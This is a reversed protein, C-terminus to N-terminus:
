GRLPYSDKPCAKNLDTFDVYMRWKGSAKKVMVVNALWEPYYVEKIFGAELLKGVEQAIARDRKPAFVRKKQRVPPTSPNVNLKHVIVFPDIGPMDEHNWAFIDQNKRLFTILAQRVPQCALTGIRTTRKPESENLIVVEMEEAPEAVTRQEEICMAQHHDEMELMAIYCERATAQNGRLEGIGYDTPFKIMIHYTSTAAKWSNLTPRGLIDNYASSCDVVLFMVNRTLEQPYDGVTVPLTISGIPFVKTGGFGVLPASAPMLQARDIGMQQFAPYYLIDVSSGNDILVRHVNYDGVRISVVLADDHPHHLRRADEETFGIIPSEMRTTNPRSGTIHVNLVSRLYTKRAKKSSGTSATGGVIMRIDGIPPRPRENDRRPAPEQRNHDTKEKNVFKQLKGQRILAEIQQKLDYCEATDHGHDRHFRCYKDRSRKSPDSKLKGPFTLTEEDKIQMLVQDIPANLPTFSTFRGSPPKPRREDRRDGTRPRKQGQDQRMDVQRERKKPREERALLADKANMYKNARYLVESMTKPDNKYLSFLFKGKRLRNTFAAVLIKDDAEDISLAEKNFRTIYSRLTEDERQRISMLCATSRKYRHGGIFHSTFQASLEKFTSISNPTLRSFWVRASGKLTTPFARCM